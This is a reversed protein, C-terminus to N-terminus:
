HQIFFVGDKDAKGKTMCYTCTDGCRVTKDHAPCIFMGDPAKEKKGYNLSKGILSNIIVFNPLLSLVSFDFKSLQKTYAYFTIDPNTRAIVAWHNIYEQSYFDGSAHVRFFKPRKRLNNLENNISFSFDDKMSAIFRNSRAQMVAPFRVQEKIAYCGKCIRGCIEMSAPLNFMYCNHLKSNGKQILKPM